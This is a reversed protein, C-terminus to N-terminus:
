LKTNIMISDFLLRLIIILDNTQKFYDRIQNHTCTMTRPDSPSSWSEEPDGETGEDQACRFSSIKKNAEKKKKKKNARKWEHDDSRKHEHLM